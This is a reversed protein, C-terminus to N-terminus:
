ADEFRYGVGRVTTIRSPGGPADIKQRLNGVHVDVINTGPDFPYGFVDALVMARTVVQGRRRALFELLAFQKQSLTLERGGVVARHAVPDIQLDGVCIAAEEAPARRVV